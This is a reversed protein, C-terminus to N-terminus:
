ELNISYALDVGFTDTASEFRTPVGLTVDVKAVIESVVNSKKRRSEYEYFEITL